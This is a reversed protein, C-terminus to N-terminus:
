VTGIIVVNYKQASGTANDVHILDGTGATVTVGVPDSWVFLGGPTLTFGDGAALFFPVGNAAPRTVTLNGTNTIPAFLVLGKIRTFVISGGLSGTLSGALDLDENSTANLTRLDAWRFNAQGTSTGNPLDVSFSKNLNDVANSLAGTGSLNSIVAVSISGTHPM